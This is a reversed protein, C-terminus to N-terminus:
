GHARYVAQVTPMGEKGQATSMQEIGDAYRVKRPSIPVYNLQRFQDKLIEFFDLIAWAVSNLRWNIIEIDDAEDYEDSIIPERSPNMKIDSHCDDWYIIGLETDLLFVPNHFGGDTLGVVHPSLSGPLGGGATIKVDEAPLQGLAVRHAINRWDAFRCGPAGETCDSSSRIYPLHRLLSIVQDTKGM